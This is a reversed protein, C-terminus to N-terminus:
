SEARRYIGADTVVLTVQIDHGETPVEDIRQFDYGIAVSSAREPLDALVRDYHGGGRGLRRGAFDFAVAPVVVLDGPALASRPLSAPPAPVGYRGPVLEGAECAAFELLDGVVRPWLVPLGAARAAEQLPTSPLEDPLAAYLAVRAAGRWEPTHVLQATVAEARRRAEAPAIRRSRERMAARLARKAASM